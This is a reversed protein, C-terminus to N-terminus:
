ADKNLERMFSLVQRWSSFVHKEDDNEGEITVIYGNTAAEINVRLFTTM